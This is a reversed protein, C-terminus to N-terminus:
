ILSGNMVLTILPCTDMGTMKMSASPSVRLVLTFLISCLDYARVSLHEPLFSWEITICLRCPHYPVTGQETMGAGTQSCTSSM